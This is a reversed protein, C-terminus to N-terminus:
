MGSLDRVNMMKELKRRMDSSPKIYIRTSEGVTHLRIDHLCEKVDASFVKFVKWQHQCAWQLTLMELEHCLRAEKRWTMRWSM